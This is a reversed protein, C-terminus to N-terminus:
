EEFEAPIIKDLIEINTRTQMIEKEIQKKEDDLHDLKIYLSNLKDEKQKQTDFM